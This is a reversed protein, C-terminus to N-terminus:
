GGPSEPVDNMIDDYEPFFKSLESKLRSAAHKSRLSRSEAKSASDAPTKLGNPSDPRPTSAQSAIGDEDVELRRKLGNTSRLLQSHPQTVTIKTASRLVEHPTTNASGIAPSQHGSVAKQPLNVSSAAEVRNLTSQIDLSPDHALRFPIKSSRTSNATVHSSPRDPSLKRSLRGSPTRLSPRSSPVMAIKISSDDKSARNISCKVVSTNTTARCPRWLVGFPSSDTAGSYPHARECAM